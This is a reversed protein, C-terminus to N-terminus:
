HTRTHHRSKSKEQMRQYIKQRTQERQSDFRQYTKITADRKEVWEYDDYLIKVVAPQSDYKSILFSMRSRVADVGERDVADHLAKQRTTDRANVSYGYTSLNLNPATSQSVEHQVQTHPKEYVPLSKHNSHKSRVLGRFVDEESGANMNPYKSYTSHSTSATTSTTPTRHSTSPVHQSLPTTSPTRHSTSPVHQSRPTTSPTRHSTSPVYQSRPTTSPVHQSRPTTSPTRHSTSPVYQSRPTPLIHRSTGSLKPTNSVHPRSNSPQNRYRSSSKSSPVIARSRNETSNSTTKHVNTKTLSPIARSALTVANRHGPKYHHGGPDGTNRDPLNRHSNNRGGGGGSELHISTHGVGEMNHNPAHPRSKPAVHYKSRSKYRSSM